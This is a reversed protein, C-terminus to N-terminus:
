RAGCPRAPREHMSIPCRRRGARKARCEVILAMRGNRQSLLSVDGKEARQKDARLGMAIRPAKGIGLESCPRDRLVTEAAIKGRVATTDAINLAAFGVTAMHTIVITITWLAWAVGSGARHGEVWLTRAAAPLFLALM